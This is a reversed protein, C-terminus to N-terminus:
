IHILSLTSGSLPIALLMTFVSILISRRWQIDATVNVFQVFEQTYLYNNCKLGSDGAHTVTNTSADYKKAADSVQTTARWEGALAFFFLIGAVLILFNNNIYNDM